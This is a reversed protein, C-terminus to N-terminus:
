MNELRQSSGMDTPSVFHSGYFIFNYIKLFLEIKIKEWTCHFSFTHLYLVAVEEQLNTWPKLENIASIWCFTLLMFFYKYGFTRHFTCNSQNFKYPTMIQWRCINRRHWTACFKGVVYQRGRWLREAGNDYYLCLHNEWIVYASLQPIKIVISFKSLWPM